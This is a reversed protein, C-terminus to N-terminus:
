MVLYRLLGGTKLKKKKPTFLDDEEVLVPQKPQTTTVAAPKKGEQQRKQPRSCPASNPLGRPSTPASATGGKRKGHPLVQNLDCVSIGLFNISTIAGYGAQDCM